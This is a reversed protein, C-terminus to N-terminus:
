KPAEGMSDSRNGLLGSIVESAWPTDAEFYAHQSRYSERRGKLIRNLPTDRTLSLMAHVLAEETRVEIALEAGLVNFPYFENEFNVIIVNRDALLADYAATSSFALLVSTNRVLQHFEGEPALEVNSLAGKVPIASSGFPHPRFWLLWDPFQKMVSVLIQMVKSERPDSQSVFLFYGKFGRDHVQALLDSGDAARSDLLERYKGLRSRCIRRPSCGRKALLSEFDSSPSVFYSRNSFTWLRLGDRELYNFHNPLVVKTCNLEEALQDVIVRQPYYESSLLILDPRNRQIFKRCSRYFCEAEALSKASCLSDIASCFLPFLDVGEHIASIPPGVSLQNVPKLPSFLKRFLGQISFCYIDQSVLRRVYSKVPAGLYSFLPISIDYDKLLPGLESLIADLGTRSQIGFVFIRKQNRRTIFNRIRYRLFKATKSVVEQFSYKHHVPELEISKRIEFIRHPIAQLRILRLVNQTEDSPRTECLVIITDPSVERLMSNFFLTALFQDQIKQYITWNFSEALFAKKAPVLRSLNRTTERAFQEIWSFQESLKAETQFDSFSRTEIVESMPGKVGTGLITIRDGDAFGLRLDSWFVSPIEEQTFNAVLIHM